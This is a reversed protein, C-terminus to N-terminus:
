DYLYEYILHCHSNLYLDDIAVYPKDFVQSLSIYNKNKTAVILAKYIMESCYMKDDTSMDFDLDFEMGTDYYRTMLSDFDHLEKPNLDYRYFAFKQIGQPHLFIELPQKKTKNIEQDEGGIAHYVFIRDGEKKIIGSHSYKPDDTSFSLLADSVFGRGHRLVLDGDQLMEPKVGAKQWKERAMASLEDPYPIYDLNKATYFIFWALVVSFFGQRIFNETKM